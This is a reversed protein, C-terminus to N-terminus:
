IYFREYERCEKDLCYCCDCVVRGVDFYYTEYIIDAVECPYYGRSLLLSAALKIKTTFDM